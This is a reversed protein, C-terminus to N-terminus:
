AQCISSIWIRNPLKLYQLTTKNNYIIVRIMSNNNLRLHIVDHKVTLWRHVWRDKCYNPTNCNLFNQIELWPLTTFTALKSSTLYNKLIIIKSWHSTLKEISHKIHHISIITHLRSRILSTSMAISNDLCVHWNAPLNDVVM